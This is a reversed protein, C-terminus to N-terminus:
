QPYKRPGWQIVGWHDHVVPMYINALSHNGWDDWTQWVFTAETGVHVYPDRLEVPELSVMSPVFDCLNAVRVTAPVNSNYQQAFTADGVHLSGFTFVSMQAATLSGGVVGDLAALSLMAGGLSHGGMIWPLNPAQKSTADIAQMCSSALSALNDMYFGYLYSNVPGYNSRQWWWSKSPLLCDTNDGWGLLDYAAEDMTVTGRLVFINHSNDDATATFGFLQFGGTPNGVPLPGVCPPSSGDAPIAYAAPQRAVRVRGKPSVATAARAHAELSPLSFGNPAYEYVQIVNFSHYGTLSPPLNSGNNYAAYAACVGKAARKAADQRSMGKPLAGDSSKMAADSFGSVM